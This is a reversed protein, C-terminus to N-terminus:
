LGRILLVAVVSGLFDLVLDNITDPLKPQFKKKKVFLKWVIQEYVEWLIGVMITLIVALPARETLSFFFMGTLLGGAFHFPAYFNDNSINLKYSTFLSLSYLLILGTLSLITLSTIAM